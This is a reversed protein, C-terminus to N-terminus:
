GFQWLMSHIRPRGGYFRRLHPVKPGWVSLGVQFDWVWCGVVM